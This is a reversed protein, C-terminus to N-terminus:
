VSTPTYYYDFNISKGSPTYTLKIIGHIEVLQRVLSSNVSGVVNFTKGSKTVTYSSFPGNVFTGTVDGGGSVYTGGSYIATFDSASLYSLSDFTAITHNGPALSTGSPPNSLAFSDEAVTASYVSGNVPIYVTLAAAEISILGSDNVCTTSTLKVYRDTGTIGTIEYGTLLTGGNSPSTMSRTLGSIYTRNFVAADTPVDWSYIDVTFNNPVTSTGTLQLSVQSTSFIPM